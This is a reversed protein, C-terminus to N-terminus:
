MQQNVIDPTFYGDGGYLSDRYSRSFQAFDFANLVQNVQQETLTENEALINM